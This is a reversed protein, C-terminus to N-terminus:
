LSRLMRLGSLIFIPVSLESHCPLRMNRKCINDTNDTNDYFM